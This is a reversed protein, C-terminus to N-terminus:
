DKHINLTHVMCNEMNGVLFVFEQRVKTGDTYTAPSWDSMNQITELLLEDVKDDDSSWIVKAETTKGEENITFKVAAIAYGEFTGAPIKDIAKEKLSLNLQQKGGPYEAEKDPDVIFTFDFNKPDNHKLSNEPIYHVNVYVESGVDARTLNAKQEESLFDTNTTAKRKRGNHITVVEVELYTRVWSSKYHPNLDMITHAERLKEKTVCIAPYTRYVGYELEGASNVQSFGSPVFLLFLFTLFFLNRAMASQM